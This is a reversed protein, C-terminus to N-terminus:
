RRVYRRFAGEANEVFIMQHESVDFRGVGDLVERLVRLRLDIDDVGERAFAESEPAGACDSMGAGGIPLDQFHVAVLPRVDTPDPGDDQDLDFLDGGEDRGNVIQVDRFLINARAPFLIVLLLSLQADDIQNGRSVESACWRAVILLNAKRPGTGLNTRMRRRVSIVELRRGASARAHTPAYLSVILSEPKSSALYENGTRSPPAASVM